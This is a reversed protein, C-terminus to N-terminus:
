VVRQQPKCRMPQDEASDYQRQYSKTNDNHLCVGFLVSVSITESDQLAPTGNDSVRVTFTHVGTQAVTPTWSFVGTVPNIVSGAPAGVTSFTLNNQPLDSDSASAVFTLLNGLMVSKNGIENLVPPQNIETVHISIAADTETVGDSVRVTFAYDGPGQAESPTWSFAGTAGDIAAGAPAGVLSFTLTQAPVDGDSADAHLQLAGVRRDDGREAGGDARRSTRRTVHLTIAADTEAVGDSVRVTFTYDGPGQAESPTWSFAGTAGDIAAGAPAGVLSFTLTQAPVDGDSAEANFRYLALEDTTAASPVGTLVPAVNAEDVHITIAADTETVGDSVRVTFAYDGPGQAESPTWTFAGTAGDIVAGAPAGVLSFTLTQAPVDGDSADADFSYLALEDRTAASPVGTLVPPDNVSTITIAVTAVNSM